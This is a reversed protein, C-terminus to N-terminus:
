KEHNSTYMELCTSLAQMVNMRLSKPKVVEAHKGFWLINSILEPTLLVNLKVRLRGDELPMSTQTDHLPQTLVYPSMEASFVLEVDEPDDNTVTIGISNKFFEDPDFGLEGTFGGSVEEVRTIRDLSMTRMKKDMRDYAILYWRGRYEKLLYPDLEYTKEISSQFKTYGLLIPKRTACVKYLPELYESGKYNAVREFQIVRNDDAEPQNSIAMRDMIKEIASDFQKFLPIERFQYLTKAAAKIADLDDENLPLESISFNPDEYYYGAYEKSFKIPAYYGLESENRMAWLDKDITSASIHEGDSGYLADECAYRLDEKSPYSGRIARDIIRYRLLAFKNAPM